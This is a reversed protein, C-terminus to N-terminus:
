FKTDEDTTNALMTDEVYLDDENLDENQVINQIKTRLGILQKALSRDQSRMARLEEKLWCLADELYRCREENSAGEACISPPDNKERRSEVYEHLQNQFEMDFDKIFSVRKSTIETALAM